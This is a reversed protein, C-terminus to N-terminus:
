HAAVPRSHGRSDRAYCGHSLIASARHLDSDRCPSSSSGSDPRGAGSRPRRGRLAGTRSWRRAGPITGRTRLRGALARSRSRDARRREACGARHRLQAPAARAASSEGLGGKMRPGGIRPAGPRQRAADPLEVQEFFQAGTREAGHEAATSVSSSRSTATLTSRAPRARRRPPRRDTGACLALAAWNFCAPM